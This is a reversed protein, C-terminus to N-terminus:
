EADQEDEGSQELLEQAKEMIPRLVEYKEPLENPLRYTAVGMPNDYDRVALEVVAKDMDKCLLLGVSPNEGEKREEKDLASLYFNLQGLYAPKFKGKKLEIAVLCHLDRHYFLLDVFFEEEGVVLRHQNGIFCFSSGLCLIFKRINKVIENEVVREDIDQLDNVDLDEVNIFDLLYEDKFMSVARLAEKSNTITKSFNNPLAGQHAYVNAKLMDRLTYKDWHNVYTQHIYFVREPETKAKNIIEMHHTFSISLFESRDLDGAVATSKNLLILDTVIEDTMGSSKDSMMRGQEFEGAMAPSKCSNADQALINAWTEYFVRMNKINSKSFGRLGPLEKKLGDSIAQVAGKGWQGERTNESVYRGVGFYLSLQIANAGKAAQYQSNLIADKIAAIAQTYNGTM